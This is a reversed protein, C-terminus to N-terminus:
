GSSPTTRALWPMLRPPCVSVLVALCVCGIDYRLYHTMKDAYEAPAKWGSPEESIPRFDVILDNKVAFM